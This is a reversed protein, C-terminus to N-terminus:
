ELRADDRAWKLITKYHNKLYMEPCSILTGEIRAIYYELAEKGLKKKLDLYQEMTMMTLREAGFSLFNTDQKQPLDTSSTTTSTNIIEKNNYSM